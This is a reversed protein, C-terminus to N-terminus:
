IKPFHKTCRKEFWIRAFPVKSLRSSHSLNSLDTLVSCFYKWDSSTLYPSFLSVRVYPSFLFIRFINCFILLNQFNWFIEVNFMQSPAFYIYGFFFFTELSLYEVFTLLLRVLTNQLFRFFLESSFLVTVQVTTKRHIKHFKYSSRNQLVNAFPQKQFYKTLVYHHM